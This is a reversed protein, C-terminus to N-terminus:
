VFWVKGRWLVALFKLWAVARRSGSFLPALFFEVPFHPSPHSLCSSSGSGGPNAAMEMAAAM